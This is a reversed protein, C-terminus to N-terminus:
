PPVHYDWVIPYGNEWQTPNDHEAMFIRAGAYIGQVVPLDEMHVKRIQYNMCDSRIDTYLFHIM